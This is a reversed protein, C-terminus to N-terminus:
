ECASTVTQTIDVIEDLVDKMVVHDDIDAFNDAGIIAEFTHSTLNQTPTVDTPPEPGLPGSPIHYTGNYPINLQKAAQFILVLLRFAHDNAFESWLAPTTLTSHLTALDSILPPLFRALLSVM